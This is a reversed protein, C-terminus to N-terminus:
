SWRGKKFYKPKGLVEAMIIGNLLGKDTFDLRFGTSNRSPDQEHQMPVQTGSSVGTKEVADTAPVTGAMGAAGTTATGAGLGSQRSQDPSEAANRERTQMTPKVTNHDEAPYYRIPSNLIRSMNSRSTDIENIRNSYLKSGFSNM